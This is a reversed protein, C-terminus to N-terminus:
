VPVVVTGFHAEAFSAKVVGILSARMTKCSRRTLLPSQIRSVPLFLLDEKKGPRGRRQWELMAMSGGLKRRLDALIL